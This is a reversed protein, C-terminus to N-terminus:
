RELESIKNRAQRLEISTNHADQAYRKKEENIKIIREKYSDIIGIQNVESGEKNVPQPTAPQDYHMSPVIAFKDRKLMKGTDDIVPQAQRELHDEPDMSYNSVVSQELVPVTSNVPHDKM